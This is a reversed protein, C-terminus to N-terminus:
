HQVYFKQTTVGEDSRLEVYYLGNKLNSVNMEFQNNGERASQKQEMYTIGYFDRIAFTVQQSLKYDLNLTIKDSAPNPNIQMPSPFVFYASASWASLVVAGAPSACVGQVQWEYSVGSLLGTILKSNTTSTTAIWAATNAPKYRINYSLAGTANWSLAIGNVTAAASTLGTPTACTNLGLTHFTASPSWASYVVVGAATICVSRVQWQYNTNSVLGTLNKFNNTTNKITWALSGAVRYRLRYSSAGTTGWNVKASTTTINNTYLGTPVNCANTIGLTTFYSLPSFAGLAIVGGAPSYGAQVQYEYSSNSALGTLNASNTTATVTLWLNNPAPSLRYRVNYIIAGTVANWNVTASNNTINTANLGSPTGCGTGQAHLYGISLVFAVILTTIYNKSKM